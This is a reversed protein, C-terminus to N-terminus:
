KENLRCIAVYRFGLFLYGGPRGPHTQTQRPSNKEDCKEDGKEPTM